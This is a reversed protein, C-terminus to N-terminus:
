RHDLCLLLRQLFPKGKTLVWQPVPTHATLTELRHTLGELDELVRDYGDQPQGLSTSHDLRQRKCQPQSTNDPQNEPVTARGPSIVTRNFFGRQQERLYQVTDFGDGVPYPVKQLFAAVKDQLAEHQALCEPVVDEYVTHEAFRTFAELAAYQVSASKHALGASFLESIKRLIQGQEFSPPFKLPGLAQMLHLVAACLHHSSTTTLLRHAMVLVQLLLKTDLQDMVDSTLSLLAALYCDRVDADGGSSATFPHELPIVRWLASVVDLVQAGEQPSVQGATTTNSVISHICQLPPIVAAADMLSPHSSQSFTHLSQLCASLLGHSLDGSVAGSVASVGVVSWVRVNSRPPVLSLLERQHQPTLFKVLRCLLSTLASNSSSHPASRHVQLVLSLLYQAHQWCLAATGYRALFCWCDAAAQSSIPNPGLLADLLGEEIIHFLKAPCSAIFGCVHEVVYQYLSVTRQPKGECPPGPLFVPLCLEVHCSNLSSFIASLLNSGPESGPSCSSKGLWHAVVDVSAQSVEDLVMVQLLLHAFTEQDEGGLKDLMSHSFSANNVLHSLVPQTAHCLQQRLEQEHKGQLRPASLNPPLVGNLRLLLKHINSVCDNFYEHFDRVLAVLVKMQFNLIRLSKLFVREDGQSLTMEDQDNAPPASQLLQTVGTDIEECLYCMMGSLDIQQHYVGAQTGALKSLAKWLSITLKLDLCAVLRCLTFLGECVQAIDHVDQKSNTPATTLKEVVNLLSMQLSHAARFVCSLSDSLLPLSDTYLDSSERCHTYSGKLVHLTCIVLSRVHCTHVNTLGAMHKVCEEVCRLVSVVCQLMQTLHQTDTEQDETAAQHLDEIISDLLQCVQHSMKSFVREELEDQQVMPVFSQCLIQLIGVAEEHSNHNDLCTILRPLAEEAREARKGEDWSVIEELFTTGSM